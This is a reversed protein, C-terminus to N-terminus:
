IIFKKNIIATINILSTSTCHPLFVKWPKKQLQFITPKCHQTIETDVYLSDAICVCVDGGELRSVM